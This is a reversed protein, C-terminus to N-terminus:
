GSTENADTFIKDTGALITRFAIASSYCEISHQTKGLGIIALLRDPRGPSTPTRLDQTRMCPVAVTDILYDVTWDPLGRPLRDGRSADVIATVLPFAQFRM